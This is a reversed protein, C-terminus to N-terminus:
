QGKHRKSIVAGFSQIVMELMEVRERLADHEAKSVFEIKPERQPQPHQIQPEMVLSRATSQAITQPPAWQFFGCGGPYTACGFFLKGFNLGPKSVTQEKVLNGCKCLM